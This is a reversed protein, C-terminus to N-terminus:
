RRSRAVAAGAVALLVLVAPLPTKSGPPEARVDLAPPIPTGKDEGATKDGKGCSGVNTEVLAPAVSRAGRDDTVNLHVTFCGDRAYTHVAEPSQTVLPRTGDGFRWEYEALTGDPDTSGSADFTVPQSVNVHVNGVRQAVAIPPANEVPLPVGSKERSTPGPRGNTASVAYTYSEGPIVTADSFRTEVLSSKVVRTGDLGKRTVTYTVSEAGGFDEPPIWSLAITGPGPTLLLNRPASPPNILGESVIPSLPGEGNSNVASVAYHYLKGRAVDEDVFEADPIPDPTIPNLVDPQTGRYVKYGRIGGGVQTWTLRLTDGVEQAALRPPADPVVAPVVAKAPTRAGEGEGNMAAVRYTFTMGNALPDDRFERATAPLEILRRDEDNRYVRYGGIAAGGDDAPAGWRLIAYEDGAYAQFATPASPPRTAAATDRLAATGEGFKNVAAVFYKYKVGAKLATDVFKLDGFVEGLKAKIGDEDQRYVNYHTIAAGGDYNPPRWTLTIKSGDPSPTATLDRPTFPETAGTVFKLVDIMGDKFKGSNRGGFIRVDTGVAVAPMGFRGDPLTPFLIEIKDRLPDFSVITSYSTGDTDMARGGFVYAKGDVAAGASFQTRYPMVVGSVQPTPSSGTVDMFVIRTTACASMWQTVTQNHEDVYETKPCTNVTNNSGLGGFMWAKGGILVTAMDQNPFPLRSELVPTTVATSGPTFVSITDRRAIDATNLLDFTYGGFIFAKGGSWVAGMGWVPKQLKQVLTTVSNSQPDFEVIDALATPVFDDVGDGGAPVIDGVNKLAAGGFVYAKKGIPDYVAPMAQRGGNKFTGATIPLPLHAVVTSKGSNADYKVIEDLYEPGSRGGFVYYVGNGVPIAASGVRPTPLTGESPQVVKAAEATLAVSFFAPIALLAIALATSARRRPEGSAPRCGAM